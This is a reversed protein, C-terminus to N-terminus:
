VLEFLPLAAEAGGAVALQFAQQSGRGAALEAIGGAQAAKVLCREEQAGIRSSRLHRAQRVRNEERERAADGL